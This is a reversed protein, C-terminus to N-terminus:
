FSEYRKLDQLLSNPMWPKLEASCSKFFMTKYQKAKIPYGLAANIRVLNGIASCERIPLNGPKLQQERLNQYDKLSILYLQAASDNLGLKSLMDAKIQSYVRNKPYKQLTEESLRLGDRYRGADFYLWILSLRLAESFYPSRRFVSELYALQSPDTKAVFPLWSVGKLLQSKYYQFLLDYAKAELIGPNQSLLTNGKRAALAASLSHHLAVLTYSHQLYVLGLFSQAAASDQFGGLGILEHISIMKLLSDLSEETQHLASTDGLDDFQALRVMSLFFLAINPNLQKEVLKTFLGEAKSYQQLSIADLGEQIATDSALLLARNSWLAKDAQKRFPYRTKTSEAVRDKKQTNDVNVAQSFGLSLGLSFLLILYILAIPRKEKIFKAAVTPWVVLFWRSGVRM